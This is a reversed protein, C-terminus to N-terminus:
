GGMRSLLWAWMNNNNSLALQGELGMQDGYFEQLLGAWDLGANQAQQEAGLNTTLQQMRSDLDAQGQGRALEANLSAVASNDMGPSRVGAAGARGQIDSFQRDRLDANRAKMNEALQARMNDSFVDPTDLRNRVSATTAQVTPDGLMTALSNLATTGTQM